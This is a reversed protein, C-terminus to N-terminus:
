PTPSAAGSSPLISACDSVPDEQNNNARIVNVECAGIIYNTIQDRLLVDQITRVAPLLQTFKATAGAQYVSAHIQGLMMWTEHRAAAVDGIFHDAQSEPVNDGCLQLADAYRDKIVANLAKYTDDEFSFNRSLVLDVFADEALRIERLAKANCHFKNSELAYFNNNLYTLQNVTYAIHRNIHTQDWSKVKATAATVLANGETMSQEIRSQRLARRAAENLQWENEEEDRAASEAALTTLTAALGAALHQAANGIALDTNAASIHQNAAAVQQPSYPVPIPAQGRVGGADKQFPQYNYQCTGDPNRAASYNLRYPCPTPAPTPTPVQVQNGVDNSPVINIPTSTGSSGSSGSNIKLYVYIASYGGTVCTIQLLASSQYSGGVQLVPPESWGANVVSGTGVNPNVGPAAMNWSFDVPETANNVVRIYWYFKGSDTPTTNCQVYASLGNLQTAQAWDTLDSLARIPLACALLLATLSLCLGCRKM